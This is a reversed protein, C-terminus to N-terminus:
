RNKVTMGVGPDSYSWRNCRCRSCPGRPEGKGLTNGCDQCYAMPKNSLIFYAIVVIAITIQMWYMRILIYLGILAAIVVGGLILIGAGRKVDEDGVFEMVADVLQDLGSEEESSM